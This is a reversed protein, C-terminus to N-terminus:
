ARLEGGTQESPRFTILSSAVVPTPRTKSRPLQLCDTITWRAAKCLTSNKLRGFCNIGLQLRRFTSVRIMGLGQQHLERCMGAANDFPPDLPYRARKDVFDM